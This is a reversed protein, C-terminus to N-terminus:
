LLRRVNKLIDRYSFEAEEPEKGTLEKFHEPHKVLVHLPELIRGFKENEAETGFERVLYDWECQKAICDALYM